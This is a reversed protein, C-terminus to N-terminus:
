HVKSDRRFQHVTVQLFVAMYVGSSHKSFCRFGSAHVDAAQVRVGERSLMPKLPIKISQPSFSLQTGLGVM